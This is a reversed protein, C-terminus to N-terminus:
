GLRLQIRGVRSELSKFEKSLWDKSRRDEFEGLIEKAFGRLPEDDPQDDLYFLEFSDCTDAGEAAAGAIDIDEIGLEGSIGLLEGEVIEADEDSLAPTVSIEM